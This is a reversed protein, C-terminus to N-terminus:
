GRYQDKLMKIKENDLIPPDTPKRKHRILPPMSHTALKAQNFLTDLVNRGYDAPTLGPLLLLNQNEYMIEQLYTGNPDVEYDAQKRVILDRTQKAMSMMKQGLENISGKISTTLDRLVDNSLGTSYTSHSSASNTFISSVSSSRSEEKTARNPARRMIKRLSARRAFHASRAEQEEEDNEDYEELNFCRKNTTSQTAFSDGKTRSNRPLTDRTLQQVPEHQAADRAIVMYMTTTEGTKIIAIKGTIIFPVTKEVAIYENTNSSNLLCLFSEDPTYVNPAQTNRKPRNPQKPAMASKHHQDIEKDYTHIIIPDHMEFLDTSILSDCESANNLYFDISYYLILQEAISSSGFHSFLGTPQTDVQPRPLKLNPNYVEIIEEDDFLNDLPDHFMTTLDDDDIIDDLDDFPDVTYATTSTSTTTTNTPLSTLMVHMDPRAVTARMNVRMTQELDRFFESNITQNNNDNDYTTRYTTRSDSSEESSLTREDMDQKMLQSTIHVSISAVLYKKSNKKSRRVPPIQTVVSTSSSRVKPRHRVSDKLKYGPDCQCWYSGNTNICTSKQACVNDLPVACENIHAINCYDKVGDCYDGEYGKDCNCLDTVDTANVNCTGYQCQCIYSCNPGARGPVCAVCNFTNDLQTGPPCTCKYGNPVLTCESSNHCYINCYDIRECQATTENYEMIRSSCFQETSTVNRCIDTSVDCVIEVSENCILDNSPSVNVFGDKCTCNCTGNINTGRQGKGSCPLINNTTNVTSNCIDIESCMTGNFYYGSSCICEYGLETGEINQCIDQGCPNKDNTCPEVFLCQQLNNYFTYYDRACCNTLNCLIGNLSSCVYPPFSDSEQPGIYECQTTNLFNLRCAHIDM